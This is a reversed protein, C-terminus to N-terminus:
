IYFILKKFDSASLNIRKLRGSSDFQSFEIFMDCDLLRYNLIKIATKSIYEIGYKDTIIDGFIIKRLNTRDKFAAICGDIIKFFDNIYFSISNLEYPDDRQILTLRQQDNNVMRVSSSLDALFLNSDDLYPM